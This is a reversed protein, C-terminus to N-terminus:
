TQGNRSPIRVSVITGRGAVGEFHVTGGGLDARERIGILGFSKPDSIEDAAIGRGDDRIELLLEEPRQRLRIEVRSANAHRSVNTLAEQVIRYIATAAVGAVHPVPYDSLSLECEIGTREEFRAAEAEIAAALGLDDLVSPRLESSIRQVSTVTEDLTSMIRKRLPESSGSPPTMALLGGVDMKLATLAQGLDDHLERAIKTREEEQVLLLRESLAKMEREDELLRREAELRRRLMTNFSNALQAIERPGEEAVQSYAGAAAGEAARSLAAVPREIARSLMTAVIIMAVLIIVGGAIGRVFTRRVKEMASSTPIGAYIHWGLEPLMTFGYQRSVGDVGVAEAIGERRRESINLLDTGRVRRGTWAGANPWRSVLTGDRDIITVVANPTLSNASEDPYQLLVLTAHNVQTSVISASRGNLVGMEPIRPRLRGSQLARAIWSEALATDRPMESEGACLFRGDAGFLFLNEDRVDFDIVPLLSQCPRADIPRAAIRQLLSLADEHMARLRTATAQAIRLATERAEQEERQVQSFYLWALLSLLPIALAAAFISLWWRISWSRRAMASSDVGPARPGPRQQRRVSRAFEPPLIRATASLRDLVFWPLRSSSDLRPARADRGGNIVGM